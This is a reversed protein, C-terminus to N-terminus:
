SWFRVSPWKSYLQSPATGETLSPTAALYSVGPEAAERTLFSLAHPRRYFRLAQGTVRKRSYPDAEQLSWLVVKGFLTMRRRGYFLHAEPSM